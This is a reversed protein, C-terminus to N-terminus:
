WPYVNQMLMLRLSKGGFHAVTEEVAKGCEEELALDHSSVLVDPAGAKKCEDAVEELAAKNRVSISLFKSQWKERKFSNVCM